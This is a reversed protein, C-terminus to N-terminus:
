NSRFSDLIKYISFAADTITAPDNPRFKNDTDNTLGLGKSIAVYGLNDTTIDKVDSYTLVFIGKSQALKEYGALKVIDKIMEERTIKEDGNFSGSNDLIGYSVAAQLYKYTEDGKTGNYNINLSPASNSIYPTYGKLNVLMKILDLRTIQKNIDFDKTDIIGDYALISLEKEVPSGKIKAKFADVNNDLEQGNYDLFKGTFADINNNYASFQQNGEISYVPKVEMVSNKPDTSTNVPSYVLEPTYKGFFINKADGQSMSGNTSPAQLNQTWSNNINTIEGTTGNFNMNISDDEYPIGNILRNFNFNYTTSSQLTKNIYMINTKYSQQTNIDKVKDPFYKEITAIANDYAQEWSLKPQNTNTNDNSGTNGYNFKDISVLQGTLSDIIINGRDALQNTSDKKYFEGSWCSTNTRLGNNMDQYNISQIDYSEGYIASTIQKMIAEASDSDLEKPLKNVTKYSNIFSQKETADLDKVQTAVPTNNIMTGTKADLSVGNTTDLAYVLKLTQNTDAIGYQDRYLIYKPQLKLNDELTQTAKDQSILSDTSLTPITNDSWKISYSCIKGTVGDVGVSLSDGIFPIGNAMRTYSFNYSSSNGGILNNFQTNDVFKCQSFEQPNIKTLFDEGIKQAQDETLTAVTPIQNNSYTYNDVNIVRGSDADVVVNINVNKQQNNTNWSIQWMYNGSNSGNMYNPTFNVNTQYVTDDITIGFYDNLAKKAITKANEESIKSNNQNQLNSDSTTSVLAMNKVNIDQGFTTSSLSCTIIASLLLSFTKKSKM